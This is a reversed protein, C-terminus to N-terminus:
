QLPSIPPAIGKMLTSGPDLMEIMWIAGNAAYRQAGISPGYVTRDYRRAASAISYHSSESGLEWLAKVMAARLTPSDGVFNRYYVVPLWRLIGRTDSFFFDHVEGTAVAKLSDAEILRLYDARLEPDDLLYYIWWAAEAQFYSEASYDAELFYRADREAVRRYEPQPDLTHLAIPVPLACGLVWFPGRPEPRLEPWAKKTFYDSMLLGLGYLGAETGRSDAGYKEKLEKSLEPTVYLSQMFKYYIKVAEIARQRRAEDLWTALQLLGFSISGTDATFIIGRDEGYGMPMIGEDLTRGIIMDAFREATAAFEEPKRASPLAAYEKALEPHKELYRAFAHSARAGYIDSFFHNSMRGDPHGAQNRAMLDAAHFLTRVVDVRDTIQDSGQPSELMVNWDFSAFPFDDGVTGLNLEFEGTTGGDLTLATEAILDTNWIRAGLKGSVQDKGPNQVLVVCKIEAPEAGWESANASVRLIRPTGILYEAAALVSGRYVVQEYASRNTFGFLAAAGGRANKRGNYLQIEAVAGLDHWQADRADILRWRRMEDDLMDNHLSLRLYGKAHPPEPVLMVEGANAQLAMSSVMTGIAIPEEVPRADAFPDYLWEPAATGVRDLPQRFKANHATREGGGAERALSVRGIEFAAPKEPWLVRFDLGIQLREVKAPDVTAEAERQAADLPVFDGFAVAHWRWEPGADVFTVWDKGESDRLTLCLLPVDFDGRADFAVVDKGAARGGELGVSLMLNGGEVHETRLRVAKGGGAAPADIVEHTSKAKSPKRISWTSAKAPDAVVEVETPKLEGGFARPELVILNGGGALYRYIVPRLEGTVKAGPAIVLADPNGKALTPLAGADVGSAELGGSRFLEVLGDDAQGLIWVSGERAAAPLGVGLLVLSLITAAARRCRYTIPWVSSHM